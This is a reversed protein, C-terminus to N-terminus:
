HNRCLQCASSTNGDLREMKRNTLIESESGYCCWRSFYCVM